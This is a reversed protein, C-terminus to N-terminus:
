SEDSFPPSVWLEFRWPTASAFDILAFFIRLPEFCWSDGIVLFFRYSGCSLVGHPLLHLTLSLSVFGHSRDEISIKLSVHGSLVTKLPFVTAFHHETPL